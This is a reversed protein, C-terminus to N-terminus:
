PALTRATRLWCADGWSDRPDAISRAFTWLRLRETDVEALDAVRDVLGLPDANLRAECNFLHQVLDYTRDGIFPKPDIVLWPERESRLVNGAHLDTTLLVDTSSPRSLEAMVVLGENVLEADPWLHKQMITEDRWFDIMQSLPRFRSLDSELSTHSWIRRLLEAIIEDQRVESESHLTTGPLCREILMAGSEPKAELLRVTGNGNWICLGPIEDRGEMHPMAVKLVAPEANARTVPAVWSGTVHQDFPKGIRISWEVELQSLLAPLRNLWDQREPTKQCNRILQQPINM